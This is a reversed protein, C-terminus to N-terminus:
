KNFIYNYSKTFKPERKNMNITDESTKYSLTFGNKKM